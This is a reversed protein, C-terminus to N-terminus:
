TVDKDKTILQAFANSRHQQISVSAEMSVNRRHVVKKWQFILIFFFDISDMNRSRECRHGMFNESCQCRYSDGDDQCTGNNLEFLWRIIMM